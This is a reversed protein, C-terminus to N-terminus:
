RGPGKGAGAAGGSAGPGAANRVEAVEAEELAISRRIFFWAIAWVVPFCGIGLVFWSVTFGGFVRQAMVDPALYNALPLLLLLIVFAAACTLSLRLQRLMLSRLFAESHVRDESRVEPSHM